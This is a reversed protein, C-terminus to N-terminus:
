TQWYVNDALIDTSGCVSIVNVSIKNKPYPLHFTKDGIRSTRYNESRHIKIKCFLSCLFIPIHYRMQVVDDIENHLLIIINDTQYKLPRLRLVYNIFIYVVVCIDIDFISFISFIHSNM